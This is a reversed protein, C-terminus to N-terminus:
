GEGLFTKFLLTLLLPFGVAILWLLIQDRRFLGAFAPDGAADDSLPLWRKEFYRCVPIFVGVLVILLLYPVLSYEMAVALAKVASFILLATYVLLATAVNDGMAKRWDRPKGGTGSGVTNVM